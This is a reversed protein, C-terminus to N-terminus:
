NDSPKLSDPASFWKANISDMTHDLKMADLSRNIIEELWVEEKRVAIGYSEKSLVEGVFKAGGHARVYIESTPKDNIVADINGNQLDIFAGAISEYPSVHSGEIKRALMEGTTGLQSGIRKGKLDDIGKIADNDSRVAIAQGAVYYPASFSVEKQREPTITMSSIICDFKHTQLGAIIGDFNSGIIETKWGNLAAIRNIVDIDFGEAQNTNTNMTEFPPYTLDSGVRLIKTTRVDADDAGKKACSVLAVAILIALASLLIRDILRAPSAGNGPSIQTAAVSNLTGYPLRMATKM